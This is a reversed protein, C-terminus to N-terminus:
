VWPDLFGADKLENRAGRERSEGEEVSYFFWSLVFLRLGVGPPLLLSSFFFPLFGEESRSRRKRERGKRKKKKGKLDTEDSVRSGGREDGSRLHLDRSREREM